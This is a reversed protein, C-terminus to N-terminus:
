NDQEEQAFYSNFYPSSFLPSGAFRMALLAFSPQAGEVSNALFGFKQKQKHRPDAKCYVYARNNRRVTFCHACLKQIKSRHKM